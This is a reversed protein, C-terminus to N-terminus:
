TIPLRPLTGKPLHESGSFHSFCMIMRHIIEAQEAKQVQEKEKQAQETLYKKMIKKTKKEEKKKKEKIERMM